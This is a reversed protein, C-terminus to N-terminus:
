NKQYSSNFLQEIEELTKNRTEPVFMYTFLWMLFSGIAFIWFSIAGGAHKLLIPFTYSVLYDGIWLSITSIAMAQGRIRTPFIESLLVWMGPGVTAM